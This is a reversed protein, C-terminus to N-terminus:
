PKNGETKAYVSSLLISLFFHKKASLYKLALFMPEKRIAHTSTISHWGVEIGIDYVM